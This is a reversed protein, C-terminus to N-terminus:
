CTSAEWWDLNVGDECFTLDFTMNGHVFNHIEDNLTDHVSGFIEERDESDDLKLAMIAAHLRNAMDTFNNVFEKDCADIEAFAKRQRANLADTTDNFDGTLLNLADALGSPGNLYKTNFKLTM